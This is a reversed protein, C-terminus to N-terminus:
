LMWLRMPLYSCIRRLTENCPCLSRSFSPHTAERDGHESPGWSVTTGTIIAILGSLFAHVGTGPSPQYHRSSAGPCMATIVVYM